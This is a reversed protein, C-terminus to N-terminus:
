ASVKFLEEVFLSSSVSDRSQNWSSTRQSDHEHSRDRELNKLTPVPIGDNAECDAIIGVTCHTGPSAKDRVLAQKRALDELPPPM